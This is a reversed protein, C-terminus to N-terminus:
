KTIVCSGGPTEPSTIAATNAAAMDEMEETLHMVVEMAEDKEENSAISDDALINAHRQDKSARRRMKRLLAKYEPWPINLDYENGSKCTVHITSM